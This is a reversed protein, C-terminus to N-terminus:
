GPPQEGARMPHFRDVDQQLSETDNRQYVETSQVRRHGAMYQVERLNYQRLWCTIVSARIQHASLLQPEQKKLRQMLRKHVDRYHTYGHILLRDSEAQAFHTQLEKRTQSLYRDLEIIQKAQLGLVRRNSTRTAQVTLTGDPLNVDDRTLTALAKVDLGQYVMLGTAIRNRLASLRATARTERRGNVEFDLYLGELQERNLLPYLKRTQKVRMDLYSGPNTTIVKAEKLSEFYHTIARMYGQVTRQSVPRKKLYALYDMLQPYGLYEADPNQETAWALFNTVTKLYSIRSNKSYGKRHLWANFQEM